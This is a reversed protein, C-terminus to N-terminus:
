ISPYFKECTKILLIVRNIKYQIKEREQNLNYKINKILYIAQININKYNINHMKYKYKIM